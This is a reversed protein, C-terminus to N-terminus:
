PRDEEGHLARMAAKYAKQSDTVRYDIEWGLVRSANNIAKATLHLGADRMARELANFAAVHEHGAGRIKREDALRLESITRERIM